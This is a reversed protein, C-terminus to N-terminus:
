SSHNSQEGRGRLPAPPSPVGTIMRCSTVVGEGYRRKLGDIATLLQVERATDGFLDGQPYGTALGKCTIGILRIRQRRTRLREFLALATRLLISDIATHRIRTQRLHTDGDSFRLKVSLHSTLKQKQRLEYGLETVQQQLILRIHDMNITAVPFPHERSIAKPNHYPIVRSDDLGNAKRWLAHGPKGFERILLRPPLDALTAVTRVGMFALKQATKHGVTPLRRVPLPGLFGREEGPAVVHAGLPKNVNAAVKSVLKNVALGMSLPLGTKKQIRDRLEESWSWAGHYRDMGTLDVYFDDISAKEFAPAGASILETVLGSHYHYREPDGRRIIVEPCLHRVMRLPMAPQIGFTRAEYSASLVMGRGADGTVIVPLGRLSADHLLEVSVFFADLDMHLIAQTFM